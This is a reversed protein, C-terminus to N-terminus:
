LKIHKAKGEFPHTKAYDLAGHMFDGPKMDDYYERQWKTYDFQERLIMSVFMEAEVVGMQETLCRMGKSKLESASIM